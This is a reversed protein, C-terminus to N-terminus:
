IIGNRVDLRGKFNDRLVKLIEEISEVEEGEKIGTIYMADGEENMDVRINREIEKEKSM